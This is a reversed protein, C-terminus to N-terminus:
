DAASTQRGRGQGARDSSGRLAPRSRPPPPITAKRPAFSSLRFVADRDAQRRPRDQVAPRLAIHIGGRHPLGLAQAITANFDAVSVRDSEVSHADKDSKGHVRGGQIGGGALLCTFAGPHHDRGNNENIKPSRGFETALVVLTEDLMRKEALDTLLASLAQDLQAGREPMTDFCDRHMDWGGQAVEVFRVGSEILRRALLCGQGLPSDGYAEQAKAPEAATDFAKLEESKLLKIAERYLESYARVERHDYKRQFPGDFASTLRMRRDFQKDQLYKPPTTNQLGAAPNGIPVPM